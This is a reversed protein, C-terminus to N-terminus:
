QFAASSSRPVPAVRPNMAPGSFSALNSAFFFFFFFFFSKEGLVLM